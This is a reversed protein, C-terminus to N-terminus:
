NSVNVLFCLYHVEIPWIYYKPEFVYFFEKLSKYKVSEMNISASEAVNEASHVIFPLSFAICLQTMLLKNKM